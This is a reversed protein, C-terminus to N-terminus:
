AVTCVIRNAERSQLKRKTTRMERCDAPRVSATPIACVCSPLHNNCAQISKQRLTVPINAIFPGFVDAFIGCWSWRRNGLGFLVDKLSLHAYRTKKEAKQREVNEIDGSEKLIKDKNRMYVTDWEKGNVVADRGFSINKYEKNTKRRTETVCIRILIFNMLLLKKYSPM